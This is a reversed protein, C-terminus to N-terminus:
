QLGLLPEFTHVEDFVHFSSAVAGAPINGYRIGLSSPACAYSTIVQDLTAIICNADFLVSEPKEGHQARIDLSPLYKKFREHLSNVLARMPLSYIMKNPPDKGKLEVFPVFVAESKGSGTPARLLM